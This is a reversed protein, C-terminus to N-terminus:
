ETTAQATAERQRPRPAPRDTSLIAQGLADCVRLQFKWDQAWDETQENQCIKVLIVNKGKKLTGQGIYQDMVDNTHYTNASALLQGNLWLRVANGSGLRVDAPREQDSTFEAVAYGAAGMHKGIAKNLDVSGYEDDTHHAIWKVKGASGDYEAPLDITEEPPYVKDFGVGGISDFPGILKWDLIFGFHEALDVPKGLKDLAEAALKVQDLDRASVLAKRYNDIAEDTQEKEAASEAEAIVRAVADRRLELSPDDLMGPILRDPASPDVRAIWEYALRRARPNHQEERLFKELGATPLPEGSNVHREAIADVAARIWNAALPDANDLAALITPLQYADASGTLASWAQSAEQNGMGEREVNQMAALWQTVGDSQARAPLCTGLWVLIALVAFVLQRM